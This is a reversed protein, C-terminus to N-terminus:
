QYVYHDYLLLNAITESRRDIFQFVFAHIRQSMEWALCFVKFKSQGLAVFLRKEGLEAHLTRECQMARAISASHWALGQRLALLASRISASTYRPRHRWPWAGDQMHAYAIRRAHLMHHILCTPLSRTSFLVCPTRTNAYTTRPDQNTSYLRVVEACM